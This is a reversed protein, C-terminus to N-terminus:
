LVSCLTAMGNGSHRRPGHFLLRTRSGVRVSALPLSEPPKLSRRAHVPAEPKERDPRDEQDHRPRIGPDLRQHLPERYWGRSDGDSRSDRKPAFHLGFQEALVKIIAREDSLTQTTEEGPKVETLDCNRLTLRSHLGNKQAIM